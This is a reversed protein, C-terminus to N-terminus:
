SANSNFGRVILEPEIIVKDPNHNKDSLLKTMMSSSTEALKRVNQKVAIVQNPLFELMAHDDFAGIKLGQPIAGLTHKICEICGELVPLSATIVTQSHLTHDNLLQRMLEYGDVHKGRDTLYTHSEKLQNGTEELGNQIGSYREYISPLLMNGALFFIDETGTPSLKRALQQAGGYNDSRVMPIGPVDYDRDIFVVPKNRRNNRLQEQQERSTSSIFLGDVGRDFLNEIVENEINENEDTCVTILQFGSNRCLWELEDALVAFHVNTLRPIILGLTHTKNLKLSRATQNIYYGHEDIIDQIRQRTKESIRYKKHQDNIVLRVTTVSVNALGAIENISKAM